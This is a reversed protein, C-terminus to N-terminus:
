LSTCHVLHLRVRCRICKVNTPAEQNAAFHAKQRQSQWERASGAGSGIPPPSGSDMVPRTRRNRSERKAFSHCPRNGPTPLVQRCVHIAGGPSGTAGPPAHFGRIGVPFRSRVWRLFQLRGGCIRFIKSPQHVIEEPGGYSKYSLSLHSLASSLHGPVTASIWTLPLISKEGRRFVDPLAMNSSTKKQARFPPIRRPHPRSM